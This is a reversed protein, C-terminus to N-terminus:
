STYSTKNGWLTQDEPVSSPVHPPAPREWVLGIIDRDLNLYGRRELGGAPTMIDNCWTMFLHIDQFSAQKRAYAAM